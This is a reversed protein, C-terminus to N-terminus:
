CVRIYVIENVKMAMRHVHFFKLSILYKDLNVSVTRLFPLIYYNSGSEQELNRPTSFITTFNSVQLPLTVPRPDYLQYIFSPLLGVQKIIFHLHKSSFM